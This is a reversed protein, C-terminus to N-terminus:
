FLVNMEFKDKLYKYIVKHGQSNPHDTDEENNVDSTFYVARNGAIWPMLVSGNYYLDDYFPVGRLSLTQKVANVFADSETGGYRYAPHVPSIGGAAWPNQIYCIVPTSPFRDFLTDFFANIYGCITTEADDTPSGISIGSIITEDLDNFSIAVGFIDVQTDASPIRSKYKQRTSTSFGSGSLGKNTVNCKCFEELYMTWNTNARVNHETISDGILYVNKFALPSHEGSIFKNLIEFSSIVFNGAFLGNSSVSINTATISRYCLRPKIYPNDTGMYYLLKHSDDTYKVMYVKQPTINTLVAYDGLKYYVAKNLTYSTNIDGIEGDATYEEIIYGRDTQFQPRVLMYKYSKEFFFGWDYDPSTDDNGEIKVNFSLNMLEDKVEIIEEETFSDPFDFYGVLYGNYKTFTNDNHNRYILNPIIVNKNPLTTTYQPYNKTNDYKIMFVNYPTVDTLLVFEGIGANIDKIFTYTTDAGGIIGDALYVSITYPKDGGSFIPKFKIAPYNSEVFFGWDYIDGTAIDEPNLAFSNYKDLNSFANAVGNSKVLNNSGATPVDDSGLEQVIEPINDIMSLLTSQLIPGTIEQNNNQKIVQRIANKLNEYAM